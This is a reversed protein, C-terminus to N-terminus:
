QKVYSPKINKEKTKSWIIFFYVFWIVVLLSYLVFFFKIFPNYIITLNVGINNNEDSGEIFFKNLVIYISNYYFPKLIYLKGNAVDVDNEKIHLQVYNKDRHFNKRTMFRRAKKNKMALLQSNDIFNVKEIFLNHNDKLKLSQGTILRVNSIKYGIVFNLGHGIMVLVVLIHVCLLLKQSKIGKLHHLLRTYICCFLNIFVVLALICIGVFWIKLLLNGMNPNLFWELILHDNMERFLTRYLSKGALYIGLSFWLILAILSSFTLKLSSLRNM